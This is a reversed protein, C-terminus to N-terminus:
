PWGKRMGHIVLHHLGVGIADLVHKLEGKKKPLLTREYETLCALIQEHHVKKPVNGKWSVPWYLVHDECRDALRGAAFTLNLVDSKRAKGNKWVQPMEIVGLSAHVVEGIPHLGCAILQAGCWHARAYYAVGPDYSDWGQAQGPKM